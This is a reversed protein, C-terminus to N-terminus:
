RTLEKNQIVQPLLMEFPKQCSICSMQVEKGNKTKLGQVSDGCGQCVLIRGDSQGLWNNEFQYLTYLYMMKQYIFNNTANNEVYAPTPHKRLRHSENKQFM